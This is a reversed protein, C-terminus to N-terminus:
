MRGTSSLEDELYPIQFMMLFKRKWLVNAKNYLSSVGNSWIHLAYLCGQTDSTKKTVTGDVKWCHVMDFTNSINLGNTIKTLMKSIHHGGAIQVSTLLM